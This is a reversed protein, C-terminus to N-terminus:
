RASSVHEMSEALSGGVKKGPNFINLPDFLRKVQAFLRVIEAGFMQELYPTRVLGDNHEGTTSGHYELVLNYVQESIKPILNRIREDKLDMLPIIHFNGNGPHGAVTYVLDNKYQDLIANLKPMFEPLYKPQVVFDDIFPATDKNPIHGHLLAFSQRRIAWYKDSEQETRLIRVQIGDHTAAFKTFASRLSELRRDLKGPDDETLEAMVVMKPMGGRLAMFAEPLFKLGLLLANGKMSAVVERWFKLAVSLTKDDYSEVSDPKFKLLEVVVDAIWKLDRVFIVAMRAHKKKKVLGLTAETVIGLTGQSGVILRTLDFTKGDWVNWLAYGASNKTVDPKAKRIVEANEQILEFIGHYLHGEFTDQRMKVHLEDATLPKIVHEKGDALVVKLQRVYKETKGYALTKEGGSNNAIMGGLACLDKSATYPPYFLGKEALAKELDRYYVGPEVVVTSEEAGSGIRIEKIHNIHQTFSAIISTNLPGGTMDTGASRATVSVNKGAAKQEAAYRVIAQVDESNMPQVVVEPSIKFISYDRSAADLSKQDHLVEGKLRSALEAALM